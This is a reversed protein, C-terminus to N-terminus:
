RRHADCPSRRRRAIRAARAPRHPAPRPSRPPTRDARWASRRSTQRHSRSRTGGRAVRRTRPSPRRRPPAAWGRGRRRGDDDRRGLDQPRRAREVVHEPRQLRQGAHGGGLFEAAAQRDAAARGILIERHHVTHLDVIGVPQEPQRAREVRLRDGPELQRGASEAHLVAVAQRRQQDDLISFPGPALPQVPRGGQANGVGVDDELSSHRLRRVPRPQEAGAAGVVIQHRRPHGVLLERPERVDLRLRHPLQRRSPRHRHEPQAAPLIGREVNVAILGATFEVVVGPVIEHCHAQIGRKSPGRPRVRDHGIGVARRRKADVRRKFVATLPGVCRVLLGKVDHVEDEISRQRQAVHRQPLLEAPREARVRRPRRRIADARCRDTKRSGRRDCDWGAAALPEDCCPPAPRGSESCDARSTVRPPTHSRSRQCAAGASASSAPALSSRLPM